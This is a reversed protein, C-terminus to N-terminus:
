RTGRQYQMRRGMTAAGDYDQRAESGARCDCPQQSEFDGEYHTYWGTGDCSQCSCQCERLDYECVECFRSKPEKM